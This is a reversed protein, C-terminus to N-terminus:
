RINLYDEAMEFEDNALYLERFNNHILALLRNDNNALAIEEAEKYYKLANYKNGNKLFQNPLNPFIMMEVQFIKLDGVKSLAKLICKIVSPYDDLEAFATALNNYSKLESGQGVKSEFFPFM